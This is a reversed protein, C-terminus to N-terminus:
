PGVEVFAAALIEIGALCVVTEPHWHLPYLSRSSWCYYWEGEKCGGGKRRFEVEEKLDMLNWGRGPRDVWGAGRQNMPGTM